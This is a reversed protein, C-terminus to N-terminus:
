TQRDGGPEAMSARWLAERAPKTDLRELGRRAWQRLREDPEDLEAVLFPLAAPSRAEGVLELLWCRLGQDAREAHFEAILEEVHESAYPLLRHFGDEQTQPNRKRMLRMAERFRNTM